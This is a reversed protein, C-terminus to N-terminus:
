TYYVKYLSQSSTPYVIVQNYTESNTGAFINLDCIPTTEDNRYLQAKAGDAVKVDTDFTFVVPNTTMDLHGVTSHEEPAVGTCVIPTDGHGVYTITIEANTKTQDGELCITGAPIVINYTKGKDLATTRFGIHFILLGDVEPSFLPLSSPIVPANCIM